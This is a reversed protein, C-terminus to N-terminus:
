SKRTVLKSSTFSLECQSFTTEKEAHVIAHTFNSSVFQIELDRSSVLMLPVLKRIRCVLM